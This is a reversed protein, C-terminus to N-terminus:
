GNLSTIDYKVMQMHSTGKAKKTESEPLNTEFIIIDDSLYPKPDTRGMVLM